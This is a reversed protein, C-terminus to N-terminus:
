DNRIFCNEIEWGDSFYPRALIQPVIFSFINETPIAKLGLRHDYGAFDELEKVWSYDGNVWVGSTEAKDKRFVTFHVANAIGLFQAWKTSESSMGLVCLDPVDITPPDDKRQAQWMAEFIQNRLIRVLWFCADSVYHIHVDTFCNVINTVGHVIRQELKEIEHYVSLTYDQDAITFKPDTRSKEVTDLMKTRLNKYLDDPSIVIQIPEIRLTETAKMRMNALREEFAPRNLLMGRTLELPLLEQQVPIALRDVGMKRLYASLSELGELYNRSFDAYIRGRAKLPVTCDDIKVPILFKRKEEAEKALAGNMEDNVWDSKVANQSLIVVLFSSGDIAQYIHDYLQDGLGMQWSDLWVPFSRNVLDIALRTVFNKDISSHSLFVGPM